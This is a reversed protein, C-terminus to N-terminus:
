EGLQGAILKRLWKGVTEHSGIAGVFVAFAAPIAAGLSMGGEIVNYIAVAAISVGFVLLKVRPGDWGTFRRILGVIMVVLASLALGALALEGTIAGIVQEIEEATQAFVALSLLLFAALMAAIGVQITKLKLM